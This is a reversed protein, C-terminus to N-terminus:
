KTKPHELADWDRVFNAIEQVTFAPRLRVRKAAWEVLDNLRIEDTATLTLTGDPNRTM